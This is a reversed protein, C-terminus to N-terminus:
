TMGKAGVLGPLGDVGPPGPLGPLGKEGKRTQAQPADLGPAGLPRILHHQNCRLIAVM